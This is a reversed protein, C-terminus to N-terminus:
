LRTELSQRQGRRKEGMQKRQNYDGRHGKRVTTTSVCVCLPTYLLVDLEIKSNASVSGGGSSKWTVDISGFMSERACM